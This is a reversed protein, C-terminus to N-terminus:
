KNLSEEFYEKQKIFWAIAVSIISLSKKEWEDFTKDSWIVLYWIVKNNNKLEEILNYKSLKIWENVLSDLIVNNNNLEIINQLMKWNYRTDYKITAINEIVSNKEIYITYNSNITKDLEDIINFLNKNNFMTIESIYKNIRYSLTILHNAELLRKNSMYIISSLLNIWKKTNKQLFEEFKTKAEIELLISDDIAEIKVQKADSDWLAWEWFIEWVWIKAITKTDNNSTNVVKKIVLNWKKIIYLNDDYDWEDFLVEWKKLTRIKFYWSNELFDIDIM